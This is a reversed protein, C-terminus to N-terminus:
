SIPPIIPNDSYANAYQFSYLYQHAVLKDHDISAKTQTLWQSHFGHCHGCLHCDEVSHEGEIPLENDVIQRDNEHSHETQIHQVDLVHTEQSNAIAVFSQIVIVIALTLNLFKNKLSIAM